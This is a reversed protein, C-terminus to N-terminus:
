HPSKINGVAEAHILAQLLMLFELLHVQWKYALM